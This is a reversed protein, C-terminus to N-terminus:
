RRSTSRCGAASRPRANRRPRRGCRRSPSGTRDTRRSRSWSRPRARWGRSGSSRRPSGPWRRGIADYRALLEEPGAMGAEVLLRATGVLPDRALDERLERPTRYASEVDSGAHALLRVTRLHLFAPRRRRRVHDVAERAADHVAVLDSGDATLYRLGPRHGYAAAVWDQPTRVSIGWGNDECVLLLPLPLQQHSLHSAANVTGTTTSHNASADGFSCVVVADEPWPSDIGLRRAREVAFAVGLARPLHSGITSTQPIVALDHHGFVKHRGGAIPETAAAVLGRLVDRVPDQGPVQAARAVYFGGSRYHLLAPDTPRLAAAVAADGEHGSSAITYFGEGRAQLSRAALDLQRSTAQAEFLALAATGTLGTGPRLPLSPDRVGSPRALAAVSRRLNADVEAAGPAETM